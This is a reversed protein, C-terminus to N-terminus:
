SVYGDMFAAEHPDLADDELLTEAYERSMIDEHFTELLEPVPEEM